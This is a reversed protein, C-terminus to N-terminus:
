YNNEKSVQQNNISSPTLVQTNNTVLYPNNAVMGGGGGGVLLVISICYPCYHRNSNSPLMGGAASNGRDSLEKGSMGTSSPPGRVPPISAMKDKASNTPTAKPM